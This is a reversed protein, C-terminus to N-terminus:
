DEKQMSGTSSFCLILGFAKSNARRSICIIKIKGEIFFYFSWQEELGTKGSKFSCHPVYSLPFNPNNKEKCANPTPSVEINWFGSFAQSPFYRRQKELSFYSSFHREESIKYKKRCKLFPFTFIGCLIHFHKTINQM